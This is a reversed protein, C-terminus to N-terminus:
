QHHKNINKSEKKQVSTNICYVLIDVVGAHGLKIAKTCLPLVSRVIKLNTYIPKKMNIETYM